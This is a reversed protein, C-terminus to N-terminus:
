ADSQLLLYMLLRSGYQVAKTVKDRGAYSKTLNIFTELQPNTCTKSLQSAM